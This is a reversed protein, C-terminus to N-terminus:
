LLWMKMMWDTIEFQKTNNKSSKTNKPRRWNNEVSFKLYYIIKKQILKSKTNIQKYVQKLSQERKLILFKLFYFNKENRFIQSQSIKILLKKWSQVYKALRLFHLINKFLLAIGSENDLLERIEHIKEHIHLLEIFIKYVIQLNHNISNKLEEYFM